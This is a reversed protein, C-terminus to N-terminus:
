GRQLHQRGSLRHRNRQWLRRDGFHDPPQDAGVADVSPRCLERGARRAQPWAAPAGTSVNKFGYDRNVYYGAARVAFNPAMPINVAGEAAYSNRNGYEAQIYGSYSDFKPKATIINLTGALANRGYLTGQPGKNVEVRELDYFMVGLGRPVRFTLATSIRRLAPDGLETNNASGVGRIFIEVNGEQNAISLGPVAQQL